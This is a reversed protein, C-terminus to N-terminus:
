EEDEEDLNGFADMARLEEESADHYMKDIYVEEEDELEIHQKNM